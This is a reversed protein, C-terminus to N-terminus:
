GRSRMKTQEHQINQSRRLISFGNKKVDTVPLGAEVMKKRIDDWTHECTIGSGGEHHDLSVIVNGGEDVQVNDFDIVEDGYSCIIRFGNEPNGDITEANIDYHMDHMVEAISYALDASKLMREQLERAKDIAAKIETDAGRMVTAAEVFKEEDMLDYAEDMLKDYSKKLDEKAYEKIYAFVPIKKAVDGKNQYDVPDYFETKECESISEYLHEADSKEQQYQAIRNNLKNTFDSLEGYVATGESLVSEDDKNVFEKISSGLKEYEGKFFKDAWKKNVAEYTDQMKKRLASSEKQLKATSNMNEIQSKLAEIKENQAEAKNVVEDAQRAIETMEKELAQMKNRINKYEKVLQKAQAYEADCYGGYKNKISERIDAAKRDCDAIDKRLKNFENEIKNAKNDDFMANLVSNKTDDFDKQLSDAKEKFLEKSDSDVSANNKTAKEIINKLKNSSTTIINKGNLIANRIIEDTMSRAQEGQKLVAAVESQKRGSM